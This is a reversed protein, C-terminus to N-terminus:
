GLNVALLCSARPLSFLTPFVPAQLPVNRSDRFHVNGLETGGDGIELGGGGVEGQESSRQVDFSHSLFIRPTFVGM